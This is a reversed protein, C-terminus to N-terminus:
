SRGSVLLAVALCALAATSTATRVLNWRVWRPEFAARVAALDPIQDPDGAAQIRANLPLHVIRTIAVTAVSGALAALTWVLVAPQDSGLQLLAAVGPLVVAGIFAVLFMPQRVIMRDIGQFAAVFTRDGARALGPMVACGFGFLLGATLGVAITSAALLLDRWLGM